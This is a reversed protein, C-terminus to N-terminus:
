CGVTRETACAHDCLGDPRDSTPCCFSCLSEWPGSGGRPDLLRENELNLLTEKALMLKKTARKKM